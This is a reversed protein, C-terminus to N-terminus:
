IFTIPIQEPKNMALCFFQPAQFVILPLNFPVM